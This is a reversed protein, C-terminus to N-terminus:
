QTTRYRYVKGAAEITTSLEALMKAHPIFGEKANNRMEEDIVSVFRAVTESIGYHAMHHRITNEM